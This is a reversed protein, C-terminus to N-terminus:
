MSTQIGLFMQNSPKPLKSVFGTFFCPAKPDGSLTMEDENTWLGRKSLYLIDNPGYIIPTYPPGSVRSAYTYVEYARTAILCGGSFFTAYRYRPQQKEIATFRDGAEDSGFVLFGGYLGTSYSVM